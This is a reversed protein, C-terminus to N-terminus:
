AVRAPKWESEESSTDDDEGQSSFVVAAKKVSTKTAVGPIQPDSYRARHHVLAQTVALILGHRVNALRSGQTHNFSYTVGIALRLKLPDVAATTVCSCSGVFDRQNRSIYAQVSEGVAHFVREHTSVDLAYQHSERLVEARTQNYIPLLALRNNPYLVRVGTDQELITTSLKMKYVTFAEKDITLKDGVDFPHVMFLFMVNEYANKISSGFVFTFALAISSFTLWVRVVDVHWVLLYLFFFIVQILGILIVHLTGIITDTDQLSRTVQHRREFVQIVASRCEEWTPQGDGDGDLLKFASDVHEEPLFYALDERVVHGREKDEMVNWYIYVALKKAANEDNVESCRDFVLKLRNKRVHREVAELNQLLKPNELSLQTDELKVTSKSKRAKTQNYYMQETWSKRRMRAGRPKSLAMLYYEDQLARQLKEFFSQRHFHAALVKAAVQAMLLGVTALAVCIAAKLVTMSGPMDFPQFLGCFIALSACAALVREAPTRSGQMYYIVHQSTAFTKEISLALLYFFVRDLVWAAMTGAVWAPWKWVGTGIKYAALVASATCSGAFALSGIGVLTWRFWRRLTLKKSALLSDDSFDVDVASSELWNSYMRPYAESLNGEPGGQMAGFVEEAAMTMSRRRLRPGTAPLEESVLNPASPPPFRIPDEM